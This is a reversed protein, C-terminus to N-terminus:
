LPDWVIGVVDGSVSLQATLGSAMLVGDAGFQTGTQTLGIAAIHAETSGAATASDRLTVTGTTTTNPLIARLVCARSCIVTENTTGTHRTLRSPTYLSM